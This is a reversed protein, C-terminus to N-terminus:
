KKINIFIPHTGKLHKLNSLSHVAKEREEKSGNRAMDLLRYALRRNLSKWWKMIVYTLNQPREKVHSNLDEKERFMFIDLFCFINM